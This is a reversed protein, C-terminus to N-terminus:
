EYRLGEIPSLKAGQRAPALTAVVCIVLTVLVIMFVDQPRFVVEIHAIKYVSAPLIGLHTEAWEFAMGFLFGLGLGILCGFLGLFFGQACLVVIMMRPSVGMAKLIGLEPYRQIVSVYLATAVNFSSAIVIVLIVFFVIVRELEVAEFINENIDRWDRVRYGVGLNESLRYSVERAKGRDKLRLILGSERDGVDALRQLAAIPMIIMREDYEYKGLELIGAVEYTGLKRRFEHPDYESPLPVLLKFKDGPRLGFLDAVGRGILTRPVEGDYFGLDGSQIRGKLHLVKNLDEPDIGQLFAGHVRGKHALVGEASLFRASAVLEPTWEEIQKKFDSTSVSTQRLRFIQLDGTADSLSRQLTEEFGSMVSMSVALFAVGLVIGILSIWGTVGLRWARGSTLLRFAIQLLIGFSAIRQKM